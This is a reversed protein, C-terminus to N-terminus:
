PIKIKLVFNSIKKILNTFNKKISIIKNNQDLIFFYEQGFKNGKFINIIKNSKNKSDYFSLINFIYKIRQKDDNNNNNNIIKILNESKKMIQEKSNAEFIFTINEFYDFINDIYNLGETIRKIENINEENIHSM